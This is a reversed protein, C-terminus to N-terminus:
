FKRRTKLNGLTTIVKQLSFYYYEQSLLIFDLINALECVRRKWLVVIGRMIFSLNCM